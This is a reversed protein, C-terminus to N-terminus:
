SYVPLQECLFEKLAEQWSRITVIQEIKATDMASYGPRKCLSPFFSGPVPLITETKVPYQLDLAMEKMVLAFDYKSAVGTNAFQFLGKQDLMKLIAKALDPAYTFRGWQDATLRIEKETQLMKLLRNVFNKGGSGFIWSTRIVCGFHKLVQEEGVLKSKGYTSLPNVLDSEKLPTNGNGEFVYDTSIHILSIHSEQAILALNEAGLANTQYARESLTEALDVQSFAACNVIHTIQPHKKVFDRLASSDAIDLESGTAIFPLDCLKCLASGLLGKAGTIWLM